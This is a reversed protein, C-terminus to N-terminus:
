AERADCEQVKKDRNLLPQIDDESNMIENYGAKIIGYGQLRPAIVFFFIVSCLVALITLSIALQVGKVMEVDL